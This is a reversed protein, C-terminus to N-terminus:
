ENGEWDVKWVYVNTGTLGTQHSFLDFHELGYGEYYFLRTFMSRALPPQMLVIRPNEADGILAVSLEVSSDFEKEAVGEATRYVFSHPQAIGQQTPIRVDKSTINIEVGNNCKITENEINVCSSTGAYSPWPAIWQNAQGENAIGQAEFYLREAEERSINSGEMIFDVAQEQPMKRAFVWVDARDFDWSGFHAWVGSKGVMDESTIFYNEPPQCHTYELITEAEADSLGEGALYDKAEERSLKVADYLIYVSKSVDDIEENLKEFATNEGCDLMRLIGVALKEDETLLTRGIWHAMPTNQSGGDFTVTRDAYYKFHHGFDWWSNVIADPAAELKIKNLSYYWADNIIPVDSKATNVSTNYPKILLLLFIIIIVIGTVKRSMNLEKKSYSTVKDYIRGIATGFALAFPPVLMMTFRVGKTSAYFIGIYWFIILLATHVQIKGQRKLFMLAIGVLSIFFLLGGGLSNMIQDLSAPNLEAVTTYVNPWLTEHAAIKIKSFGLPQLPANVFSSLGGASLLSVFIGSFLLFVGATIAVQRTREKFGKEKIFLYILYIVLMGIIFDFVYWWGNWALSYIGTIVGAIAAYAMQRTRNKEDIATLFIWAIFLPFFINYADTDAHGWLSRGMFAPHIAIILSSFFGGINGAIKRGIFFAPIVSLAAFLVPFFAASNMPTTDPDFIKITYYLYALLYPHLTKTGIRKKLPGMQHTNWQVETGNVTTKEDGIYGHDIYNEAYRLFVYPDIDPMYNHGTSDFKFFEKFQKSLERKQQELAKQNAEKYNEFQQQIIAQKNRDPLNPYQQSVQSAIQNRFYNDVTSDAWKDTFPLQATQMRIGVAFIVAILILIVIRYEWLFKGVASLDVPGEPSSKTRKKGPRFFNKIKGFDLALEEDKKVEKKIEKEVKNLKRKEKEINEIAEKEEKIKEKLEKKIDKESDALEEDKRKEKVLFDEAKQSDNFDEAMIGWIKPLLEM